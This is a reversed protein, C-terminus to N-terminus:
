LEVVQIYGPANATTNGNGCTLTATGASGNKLHLEYSHSGASPALRRSMHFNRVVSAGGWSGIIGKNSGDEVLLIAAGLAAGTYVNDFNATVQIPRAGVDVTVSLGGILTGGAATSTATFTTTREAYELEQGPV